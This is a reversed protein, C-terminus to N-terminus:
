IRAILESRSFIRIGIWILCADLAFFGCGALVAVVPSFFLLGTSQAVMLVLILIVLAGSAQYAEMFTRVRTSILVTASVGLLSVSPVVFIMLALWSETPFWIRGMVPYGAINTVLSFIVFNGWAYLIGPILSALTKAFFLEADTAPTYLLAELTKREKEGVFAEAAIMCSLMLPLVLFLPAILYGLILVIPLQDPTLGALQATLAPQIMASLEEFSQQNSNGQALAPLQTILLPLGIAFIVSLIIAGTVAIRNKAVEALDKEAIARIIRWNM